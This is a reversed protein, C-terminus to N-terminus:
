YISQRRQDPTYVPIYGLAEGHFEVIPRFNERIRFLPDQANVITLKSRFERIKERKLFEYVNKRVIILVVIGTSHQLVKFTNCYSVCWVLNLTDRGYDADSCTVLGGLIGWRM